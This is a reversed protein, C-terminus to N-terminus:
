SGKNGCKPSSQPVGHTQSLMARRKWLATLEERRKMKTTKLWNKKKKPPSTPIKLRGNGADSEAEELEAQYKSGATKEPIATLKAILETPTLLEGTRDTIERSGKASCQRM